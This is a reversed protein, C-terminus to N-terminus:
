LHSIEKGPFVDKEFSSNNIQCVYVCLGEGLCITTGAGPVVRGETVKPYVQVLNPYVQVARVCDMVAECATSRPGRPSAGKAGLVRRVPLEPSINRRAPAM